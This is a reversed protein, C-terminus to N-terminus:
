DFAGQERLEQFSWREKCETFIERLHPHKKWADRSAMATIMPYKTNKYADASSMLILLFLDREEDPDLQGDWRKRKFEGDLKKHENNSLTTLMQPDEMSTFSGSRSYHDSGDSKVRKRKLYGPKEDMIHRKRSSVTIQVIVHVLGDDGETKGNCVVTDVREDPPVETAVTHLDGIHDGLRDLLIKGASRREGEGEEIVLEEKPKWIEIFSSEAEPLQLEIAIAKALDTIQGGRNVNVKSPNNSAHPIYNLYWLQLQDSM